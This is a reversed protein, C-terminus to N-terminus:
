AAGTAVREIPAEEGRLRLWRGSLIACAFAAALLPAVIGFGWRMGAADSIAGVALPATLLAGGTAIALRATARDIDHAGAGTAAGVTLPYLNAIGLGAVFLGLLSVAPTAALWFLFFGTGAVTIAALLLPLTRYHRALRSGVWRGGTMAVFFLTMATAARAPELGIVSDLFEAGWYAVCWEAAAVLFLVVWLMWFATPLGQGPGHRAEVVAPPPFREGRFVWWLLLAWPVTIALGLQWGLGAAAFGGIALPAFIATGTAAVNSETLAVTRMAGHMDSLVAQNAMLSVTGILGMALAGLLTGVVSPSLAVVLAGAAMGALGGWLARTRGLRRVWREGLLGAVIAGAAFASFHLSAVAYGLGLEARLFPMAPGIGTELYAFLGLILYAAWTRRDRLFAAPTPTAAVSTSIVTEKQRLWAAFVGVLPGPAPNRIRGFASGAHASRGDDGAGGLPYGTGTCLSFPCPQKRPQCRSGREWRLPALPLSHNLHPNNAAHGAKPRM